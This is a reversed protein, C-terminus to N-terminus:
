LTEEGWTFSSTQDKSLERYCQVVTESARKPLCCVEEGGTKLYDSKFDRALEDLSKAKFDSSYDDSAYIQLKMSLDWFTAQCVGLTISRLIQKDSILEM